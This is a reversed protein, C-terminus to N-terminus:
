KVALPQVTPFYPWHHETCYENLRRRLALAVIPEYVALKNMVAWIDQHLRSSDMGSVTRGPAHLATLAPLIQKWAAETVQRDVVEQFARSLAVSYVWPYGVEEMSKRGLERATGVFAGIIKAIAQEASKQGPSFDDPVSGPKTYKRNKQTLRDEIVPQFYKRWRATELEIWADAHEQVLDRSSVLDELATENRRKLLHASPEEVINCLFELTDIREKNQDALERYAAIVKRLPRWRGLRLMIKGNMVGHFTIIGAKLLAHKVNEANRALGPPPQFQPLRM